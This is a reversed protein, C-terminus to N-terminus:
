VFFAEIGVHRDVVERAHANDVLGATTVLVLQLAKRTGTSAQFVALKRKLAEAYGKTIVFPNVTHKLECVSIVDDARDILLDIQAGQEPASGIAQWSSAQTHVGGIGLAHQLRDVHKTCFSEFALGSWTAFRPSSRLTSWDGAKKPNRGAMWRQHFLSFEDILRYYRDRSTRGFPIVTQIFGAEELNRLARNAGGGSRLGAAALLENRSTGRRDQALACTVRRYLESDTFLSAFLHEFESSLPGDPRFCLTDIAQAVSMGRPVLDLYYPVGGVALYLEILQRPTLKVGRHLLLEQAEPLSLPMLRITQTLRNHLGGRAHIVNELMWSASSGCVVLIVNPQKSGWSNWFHELAERCGSKHTALWPLEDFFLVWKKKRERAHELERQLSRFAEHWSSPVAWDAGPHFTDAMADAFIRLSQPLSANCRGTVEFVRARPGFFARVLFTKGVRRRGYLGLFEPRSSALLQQLMAQERARGGIPRLKDKAM